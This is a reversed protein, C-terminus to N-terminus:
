LGGIFKKFHVRGEIDLLDSEAPLSDGESDPPGIIFANGAFPQHAGIEFFHEIGSFLGEENVFVHDGNELVHGCEINGGVLAQMDELTRVTGETITREVSNIILVRKPLQM